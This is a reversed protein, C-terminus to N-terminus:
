DPCQVTYIFYLAWNKGPFELGAAWATEDEVPTCPMPFELFIVQTPLLNSPGIPVLIIAIKQDCGPTFGEGNAQAAAIIEDIRDILEWIAKQIDAYTYEGGCPSTQGVFNQNIIWNVLDLNEPHEVLGDPLMPTYGDPCDDSPFVNATYTLAPVISNDTDICWGPHTGTLIGGDPIITIGFYATPLSPNDPLTVYFDVTEPLSGILACIDGVYGTITQVVGHAAIYLKEDCAWTLLPIKYEYEQVFNHTMKYDFKGPPPNGNKQPIDAMSTAVHLHTESLYWDAALVYKVYLYDADNWVLVDGADLLGNKPNGAVLDTVFPDEQTHAILMPTFILLMSIVFCFCFISSLIRKMKREKNLVIYSKKFLFFVAYQGANKNIMCLNRYNTLFNKM